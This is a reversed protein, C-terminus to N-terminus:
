SKFDTLNSPACRGLYNYDFDYMHYNDSEQCYVLKVYKKLILNYAQNYYHRYNKADERKKTAM